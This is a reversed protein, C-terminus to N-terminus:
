PLAEEGAEGVNKIDEGMGQVTKCGCLSAAMMALALLLVVRKLM